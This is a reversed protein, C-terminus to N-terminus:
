FAGGILPVAVVPATATLHYGVIPGAVAVILDLTLWGTSSGGDLQGTVYMLGTLAGASAVGGLATGWLRGTGGDQDGAVQVGVVVGLTAGILLGGTGVAARRAPTGHPGVLALGGLGFLAGGALGCFAGAGAQEAMTVPRWPARPEARAPPRSGATVLAFILAVPLPRM